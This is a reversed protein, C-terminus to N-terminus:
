PASGPVAGLYLHNAVDDGDVDGVAVVALWDQAGEDGPYSGVAVEQHGTTPLNLTERQGDRLRIRVVPNGATPDARVYYVWGSPSVAPRPAVGPPLLGDGALTTAEATDLNVLVLAHGREPRRTWALLQGDATAALSLLEYRLPVRVEAVESRTLRMLRTEERTTAIFAVSGDPLPTLSHEVATPTRTLRRPETALDTGGFRFLDLGEDDELTVLLGGAPDRQIAVPRGPPRALDRLVGDWYHATVAGSASRTFFFGGADWWAAAGDARDAGAGLAALRSSRAAPVVVPDRGAAVIRLVSRRSRDSAEHVLAPTEGPAWVPRQVQLGDMDPSRSVLELPLPDAALCPLAALIVVLGRFFTM